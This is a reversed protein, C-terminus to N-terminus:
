TCKLILSKLAPIQPICIKVGRMQLAFIFGGEWLGAERLVKRKKYNGLSGREGDTKGACCSVLVKEPTEEVHGWLAEYLIQPPRPPPPRVGSFVSM